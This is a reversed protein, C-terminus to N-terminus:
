VAHLSPLGRQRGQAGRLRLEEEGPRAIRRLHGGSFRFDTLLWTWRCVHHYGAIQHHRLKVESLPQFLTPDDVIAWNARWVPKGVKLRTMFQDVASGIEHAFLPVPLHISAIDMGMKELLSWRQPFLVAGSVLRFKGDVKM